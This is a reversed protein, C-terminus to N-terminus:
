RSQFGERLMWDPCRSRRSWFAGLSNRAANRTPMSSRADFTFAARLRTFSSSVEAAGSPGTTRARDRGSVVHGCGWARLLLRAAASSVCGGAGSRADDRRTRPPTTAPSEYLHPGRGFVGHWGQGHRHRRLEQSREADGQSRGPGAHRRQGQRSKFAATGKEHMSKKTSMAQDGQNPITMGQQEGKTPNTM